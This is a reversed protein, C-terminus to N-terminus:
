AEEEKKYVNEFFAIIFAAGKIGVIFILYGLGVLPILFSLGPILAWTVAIKRYRRRQPSVDRNKYGVMDFYTFVITLFLICAYFLISGEIVVKMGLGQYIFQLLHIFSGGVVYMYYMALGALFYVLALKGVNGWFDKKLKM